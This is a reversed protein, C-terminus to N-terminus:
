GIVTLGDDNITMGCQKLFARIHVDSTIRDQQEQNLYDKWRCDLQRNKTDKYQQKMSGHHTFNWYEEQGPEYREGLWRM